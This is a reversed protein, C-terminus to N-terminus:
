PAHRELYADAIEVAGTPPVDTGALNRAMADTRVQLGALSEALRTAAGGTAALLATLPLWEAHWPGAGRQLEAPMAGLVTAVLGPAQAAAARATIAAIPNHKHPMSSSGGGSSERLEGVEDQALLVLDAAIKGFTGCSVGLDAALVAIRSRETHWVTRPDVLGLHNALAVRVAAGHPYWGALTGAAGGLQVALGDRALALRRLARDLGDGWGAAVAGFTTPIAQQLLTRGIMATDRHTRVLSTCAASAEEVAALIVALANRAVLMAATDLVDQSTAGLHVAAAVEPGYADQARARLRKVLPIVPNGDAASERGLEGPGDAAVTACVDVVAGAVPAAVLGVSQCAIALAAETDCLAQLWAQDETVAAVATAGFVPDWLASM